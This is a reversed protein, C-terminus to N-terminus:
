AQARLKQWYTLSEDPHHEPVPQALVEDGRPAMSQALQAALLEEPYVGMCM